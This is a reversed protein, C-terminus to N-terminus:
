PLLEEKMWKQFMEATMTRHYKDVEKTKSPFLLVADEIFGNAGGAHIVIYRKGEDLNKSSCSENKDKWSRSAYGLPYITLFM